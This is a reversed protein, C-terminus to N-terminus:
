RRQGDVRNGCKVCFTFTGPLFRGCDPDTCPLDAEASRSGDDIPPTRERPRDASFRRSIISGVGFHLLDSRSLGPKIRVRGRAPDVVDILRQLRALLETNGSETALRVAKGWEREADALRGTDYADFGALAAQHLEAQGSYHAVKPDFRSSLAVDATWHVLVPAPPACRETTDDAGASRAVLEIMAVQLNEGEPDREGREVGLSLQYDRSENAAWSGTSFEWVNEREPQRVPNGTFDLERPFVQKLQRVHTGRRATVRIRADPVVKAMAAQALARFDGVLDADARVSDAAGRLVTVIRHLERPDWDEGIGRADCFFHGDCAALVRDLEEPTEHMNQGDTLLVAHRIASPHAALLERALTLWTGMRTGGSAALRNIQRKAEAKTTADAVAMRATTPYCMEAHDTGQVIAFLTGDRLAEVAACAARRAAAIKTPPAAMSGSCDLLIAEAAVAPGGAVGDGATVTLIADVATDSMSLYRNQSVELGFGLAVM